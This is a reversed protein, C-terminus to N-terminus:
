PGFIRSRKGFSPRGDYLRNGIRDWINFYHISGNSYSYTGCSEKSKDVISVDASFSREYIELVNAEKKIKINIICRLFILSNLM